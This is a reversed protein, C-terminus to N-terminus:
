FGQRFRQQHRHDLVRGFELNDGRHEALAAGRKDRQDFRRAAQALREGDGRRRADRPHHETPRVEGAFQAYREGPLRQERRAGRQQQGAGLCLHRSDVHGPDIEVIEVPQGVFAGAGARQAKGGLRRDVRRLDRGDLRREGGGVGLHAIRYL